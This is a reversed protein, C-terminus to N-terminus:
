LVGWEDDANTELSVARNVKKYLHKFYSILIFGSPILNIFLMLYDPVNNYFSDTFCPLTLTKDFVWNFSLPVCLEGLSSVIISLFKFPINLLSDVPGPPLLGQVNGLSSIDSSPEDDSELYDKIGDLRENTQQQNKNQNEIIEQGVGAIVDSTSDGTTTLSYNDVVVSFLDYSEFNDFYIETFVNGGNTTQTWTADFSYGRLVGGNPPFEKITGKWIYGEINQNVSAGFLDIHTTPLETTNYYHFQTDFQFRYELNQFVQTPYTFRVRQVGPASLSTCDYCSNIVVYDSTYFHIDLAFVDKPFFLIIPVILLFLYKKM